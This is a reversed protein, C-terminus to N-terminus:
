CTSWKFIFIFPDHIVLVLLLTELLLSFGPLNESLTLSFQRQVQLLHNVSIGQVAEGRLPSVKKSVLEDRIASVIM